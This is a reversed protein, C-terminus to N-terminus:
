QLIIRQPILAILLCERGKLYMNKGYSVGLKICERVSIGFKGISTKIKRYHFGQYHMVEIKLLGIPIM